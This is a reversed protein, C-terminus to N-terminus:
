TKQLDTHFHLFYDIFFGVQFCLCHNKNRSSYFAIANENLINKHLVTM